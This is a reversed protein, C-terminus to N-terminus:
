KYNEYLFKVHKQVNLHLVNKGLRTSFFRFTLSTSLIRLFNDYIDFIVYFILLYLKLAFNRLSHDASGFPDKLSGRLIKVKKNTYCRLSIKNDNFHFCVNLISNFLATKNTLNVTFGTLFSYTSFPIRGYISFDSRGESLIIM